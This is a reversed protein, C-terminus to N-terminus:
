SSGDASGEMKSVASPDGYGFGDRFPQLVTAVDDFAFAYNRWREVAHRYLPQVVQHYSPTAIARTRAHEAYGLVADDWPLGLFELIREAEGRLDATLDEYRVTIKRLTLVDRYHLWLGMVEAYFRATSALSDFLVMAGNPQMAQMFGSLVVDHPHRLAVILRADPFLRHILVVDITNLPMKDIVISDGWPGLHREVEAFYLRRLGTIAAANLTALADPYGGPLRDVERRAQDLADREEMTRLAPHADLIQDLLTTGSRPFGILFVPAAREDPPAPTWQALWEPQTRQRLRDILKPFFSRDVRQAAPTAALLDNAEVFADYASPYLALRDYVQAREFGAYARTLLDAPTADLAELRHRAADLRGLRRECRAATVAARVDRADLRLATEATILADELRNARELLGALAAPTEADAPDLAIARRYSAEAGERDGAAALADGLYRHAKGWDPRVALAQRFSAVADEAREVLQLTRGRNCWAEAYDPRAETARDYAAAADVLRDQRQLANGLNNLAEPYVPDLEIARRFSQEADKPRDLALLVAGQSNFYAAARPDAAIAREILTLAEAQGGQQHAALGALHLADPHRPNVRLVDRYFAAARDLRGLRHHALGEALLRNATTTAVSANRGSRAGPRGSPRHSPPARRSM